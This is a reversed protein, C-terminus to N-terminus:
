GYKKLLGRDNAVWLPATAASIASYGIYIKEASWASGGALGMMLAILSLLFYSRATKM